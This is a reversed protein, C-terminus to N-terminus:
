YSYAGSSGMYAAIAAAFIVIYLLIGIISFCIKIISAIGRNKFFGKLEVYSEAIKGMDNTNLYNGLKECARLLNMGSLILFIGVPIGIISICTFAGCIINLIAQFKAWKSTTSITDRDISFYIKEEEPVVRYNQQNEDM